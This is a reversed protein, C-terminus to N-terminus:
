PLVLSWRQGSVSAAQWLAPRFPASLSGLFEATFLYGGQTDNLSWRAALSPLLPGLLVTILGTPIFAAYALVNFGVRLRRESVPLPCVEM